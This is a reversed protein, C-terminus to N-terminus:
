SSTRGLEEVNLSILRKDDEPRIDRRIAEEALSLSERAAFRRLEQTAVKAAVEIERQAQQRLKAMEVNTSREMREREADAEAKSRERITSIESDLRELRAEVEALKALAEDREERAKLLERKISERRSKLAKSVKSGFRNHLYIAGAVFVLLNVFKWLEFGPYNWWATGSEISLITVEALEMAALFM